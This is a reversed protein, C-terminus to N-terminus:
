IYVELNNNTQFVFFFLMKCFSFYSVVSLSLLISFATLLCLIRSCCKRGVDEEKERWVGWSERETLKKKENKLKEQKWNIPEVGSAGKIESFISM